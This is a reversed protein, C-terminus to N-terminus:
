KNWRADPPYLSTGRLVQTPAASWNPDMEARYRAFHATQQHAQFAADDAYVEYFAISGPDQDDQLIDFRLCGPETEVSGIADVKAVELFSAICEPKIRFQVMIVRM